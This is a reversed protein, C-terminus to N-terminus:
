TTMRERNKRERWMRRRDTLTCLVVNILWGAAAAVTILMIGSAMVGIAMSAAVIWRSFIGSVASRGFLIDVVDLGFAGGLYSGPLLGFMVFLTIGCGGLMLAPRRFLGTRRM